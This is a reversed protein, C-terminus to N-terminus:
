LVLEGTSDTDSRHPNSHPVSGKLDRLLQNLAAQYAPEHHRDSFNPIPHQRIEKALNVFTGPEMLTWSQILGPHVLGVPFLLRRREQKELDRTAKLEEAIWESAM